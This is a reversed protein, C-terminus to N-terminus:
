QTLGSMNQVKAGGRLEVCRALFYQGCYSYDGECGNKLHVPLGTRELFLKLSIVISIPGIHPIRERLKIREQKYGTNQTVKSCGLSLLSFARLVTRYAM